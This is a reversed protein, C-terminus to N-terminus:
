YVTIDDASLVKIQYNKEYCDVIGKIDITKGAYADTNRFLERISILEM